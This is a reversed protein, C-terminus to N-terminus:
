QGGHTISAFYIFLVCVGGAVVACFINIVVNHVIDRYKETHNHFVASFSKYHTFATLSMQPRRFPMRMEDARTISKAPIDGASHRQEAYAHVTLAIPRGRRPWVNFLCM